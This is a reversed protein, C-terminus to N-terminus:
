IVEVQIKAVADSELLFSRGNVKVEIPDAASTASAIAEVSISRGVVLGMGSLRRHLDANGRIKAIKGKEGPRLESLPKVTM